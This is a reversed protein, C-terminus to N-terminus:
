QISVDLSCVHRVSMPEVQKILRFTLMNLYAVIPHLTIEVRKATQSWSLTSADCWRLGSYCCLIFAAKIDENHNPTDVLTFLEDAALLRDAPTLHENFRAPRGCSKGPFLTRQRRLSSGTLPGSM